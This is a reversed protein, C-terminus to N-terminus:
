SSAAGEFLLKRHEFQEYQYNNFFSMTELLLPLERKKKLQVQIMKNAVNVQGNTAIFKEYIRNDSLSSYRGLENAFIRYINHALITMTLDFDVKIVMSSSVKNLHFFEVQESIEKEVLWRRAYKRVVVQTNIDFDNTIILAPKVKGNGTIAVQRIQKTEGNVDCYGRLEITSDYAKLTRKKMASCDVRITKWKSREVNRIQDVIKKGRRRITLFKIGKHDLKSLNEYNTFRSDFVLYKLKQAQKDSRYFDLYELVVNSENKHMVDTNGYDIIGTDPDQALVALMSSLAKNRKGSWNNELHTHEGWYPITTFDLNSTDGLLNHKAWVTHMSRLFSVNMERTVRHSYSSFWANKPLVNLGAFFGSGRDMCWLDDVSYRRTGVLKLALFSMISSLKGISRTSPYSSNQILSDIEYKRIIPLFCLLGATSTSFTENKLVLKVSVPAEIRSLEQMSKFGNSRRPLRAFGEKKILQYVYGYSVKLGKSQIMIVIDEASFNQKRLTIILSNLEKAKSIPKRGLSQQKFFFRDGSNLKLHEKFDRSLSYLSSLKYGYRQAVDVANHNLFFFDRLADYKKKQSSGIETFYQQPNM